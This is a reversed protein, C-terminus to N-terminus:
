VVSGAVRASAPEHDAPARCEDRREALERIYQAVLGDTSRRARLLRTTDRNFTQERETM